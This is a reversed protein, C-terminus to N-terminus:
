SHNHATVESANKIERLMRRRILGSVLRITYWYPTFRRRSADDPCFIRTETVLRYRGDPLPNVVYGLALKAVGPQAFALFGPGDAVDELGYEAQWFRGILGYVLSTGDQELLCFNHLGFPPPSPTQRPMLRAPLERLAIMSRFFRDHKPDYAAVAALIRAPPAAIAIAHRESFQYQELYKNLLTM